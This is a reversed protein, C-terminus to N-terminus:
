TTCKGLASLARHPLPTEDGVHGVASVAPSFTSSSEVATLVESAVVTDASTEEVSTEAPPAKGSHAPAEAKTTGSVAAAVAAPATIYVPKGGAAAAVGVLPTDTDVAAAETSPLSPSPSAGETRIPCSLHVDTAPATVGDAEKSSSAAAAATPSSSSSSSATATSSSEAKWVKKLDEVAKVFDRLLYTEKVAASGNFLLYAAGNRRASAAARKFVDLPVTRAEHDELYLFSLNEDDIEEITECFDNLARLYPVVSTRKTNSSSEPVAEVPTEEGREERGGRRRRREEKGRESEEEPAASAASASALSAGAEREGAADAAAAAESRACRPSRDGRLVLVAVARRQADSRLRSTVEAASVEELKPHLAAVVCDSEPTYVGRTRLEEKRKEMMDMMHEAHVEELLQKKIRFTSNRSYLAVAHLLLMENLAAYQPLSLVQQEAEKNSTQLKKTMGSSPTKFDSSQTETLLLLFKEQKVVHVHQLVELIFEETAMAPLVAGPLLPLEGKVADEFMQKLGEVYMRIKENKLYKKCAAEVTDKCAIHHKKLVEAEATYLRERFVQEMLMAEVQEKTPAEGEQFTHTQVAHAVSRAVQALETFISFFTDSLDKVVNETEEESLPTSSLTGRNEQLSFLLLAQGRSSTLFWIAAAAAALGIGSVLQARRETSLATGM